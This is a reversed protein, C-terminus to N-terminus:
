VSCLREAGTLLLEVDFDDTQQAQGRRADHHDRQYELRIRENLSGGLVAAVATGRRPARFTYEPKSEEVQGPFATNRRKGVATARRKKRISEERALSFLAREHAETDRLLATIDRNHLMANTFMKPPPFPLQGITSACLQIQELHTDLLTM